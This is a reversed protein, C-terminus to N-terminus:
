VLEDLQRNRRKYRAAGSFPTHLWTDVIDRAYIFVVIACVLIAVVSRVLHWRLEELHDIFSMEDTPNKKRRNFFDLIAM